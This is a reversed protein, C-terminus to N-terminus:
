FLTSAAFGDPAAAVTVTRPSIRSPPPSCDTLKIPLHYPLFVSLAGVTATSGISFTSHCVCFLVVENNKATALRTSVQGPAQSRLPLTGRDYLASIDAPRTRVDGTQRTFVKDVRGFDGGQHSPSFFETNRRRFSGNI